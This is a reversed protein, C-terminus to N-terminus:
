IDLSENRRTASWASCSPALRLSRSTVSVASAACAAQFWGWRTVEESKKVFPEMPQRSVQSLRRHTHWSDQDMRVLFDGPFADKKWWGEASFQNTDAPVSVFRIGPCFLRFVIAARRSHYSSTVLIVQKVERRGLEGRLAVAEAITSRANHPFIALMKRSFGEKVLFDIALEGEPRGAYPPSSILVTRAYGLKGLEAAKVVRPGWFDGGLVLILDASRPAESDILSSGLLNLFAQWQILLVAALVVAAIPLLRRWPASIRMHSPNEDGAVPKIEEAAARDAM